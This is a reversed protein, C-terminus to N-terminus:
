RCCGIVNKDKKQVDKNKVDKTKVKEPVNVHKKKKYPGRSGVGTPRKYSSKTPTATTKGTYDEDGADDIMVYNNDDGEVYIDEDDHHGSDGNTSQGNDISWDADLSGYDDSSFAAAGDQDSGPM